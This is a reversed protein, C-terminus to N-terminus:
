STDMTVKSCPESFNCFSETSDVRVLSLAVIRPESIWSEHWGDTSGDDVVCIDDCFELLSSLCADLYRARENRLILSAALKVEAAVLRLLLPRRGRVAAM